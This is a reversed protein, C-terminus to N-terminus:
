LLSFCSDCRMKPIPIGYFSPKHSAPWVALLPSSETCFQKATGPSADAQPATENAYLPPTPHLPFDRCKWGGSAVMSVPLGESDHGRGQSVASYPQAGGVRLGLSVELDTGALIGM